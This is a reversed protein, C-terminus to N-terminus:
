NKRWVQRVVAEVAKDVAVRSGYVKGAVDNVVIAFAIPSRGPPALVYGSLSTVANLTGTKARVSRNNRVQRFRSRLTGDEGGVALHAVFEPGMNPDQYAARLLRTLTSASVRNTDFLGSGNMVKTSPSDAEIKKLYRGLVAAGDASTLGRRKKEGALGKFIMEAYFNDSHKGLEGLLEALPRSRHVALVRKATHGGLKVDGAFQIGESLLLAKLAYGPVLLPDDLRRAFSLRRSDAAIAGGVRAVLRGQQPVLQLQVSDAEGKEATKIAGDTSVVGPPDFSIVARQGETTPTVSMTVANRNLAIASVPARFYAWEDPQQEFGQPVFSSDFYSQDVLLDGQVRTVGSAKLDSVLEWLDRTTLSPDGYSRLVLNHVSNGKREGYLATQYRHDGGFTDLAAAATLLKMNSAPNLGEDANYAALVSGTEVEVISVGVKGGYKSITKVLADVAKQLAPSKAAETVQPEDDAQAAPANTAPVAAMLSGVLLAAAGAVLFRRSHQM